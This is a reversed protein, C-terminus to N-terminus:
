GGRRSARRALALALALAGISWAAAPARTARADLACGGGGRAAVPMPSTAAQDTGGFAGVNIRGGHPWPEDGVPLRPDGADITPSTSYERYDGSAPDRLLAAKPVDTPDVPADGRRDAVNGGIASHTTRVPGAADIGLDARTVIVGDLTAAGGALVVLGVRADALTCQTMRLAGGGEVVVAQEHDFLLVHDLHASAGAAVVVGRAADRLAFGELRAGDGLLYADAVARGPGVLRTVWPGEGRVTVGAPVSAPADLRFVGAGLRVVDGPRAAALAQDLTPFAAGAITVPRQAAVALHAPASERGRASRATVQVEYVAGETLGTITVSTALGVDLPASWAGSSRERHRVVHGASWPTPSATWSVTIWDHDATALLDSPPEPALDLAVEVPASWPSWAGAADRARVRAVYTRGPVLAAPLAVSTTGAPAAVEHDWDLLVEGDDDFRVVAALASAPDDPDPGPTWDLQGSPAQVVAPSPVPAAPPENQLALADVRGDRGVLVLRGNALAPSAAEAWRADPRAFSPGAAGDARLWRASAELSSAVLLWAGDPGDVAIPSPCHGFPPVVNQSTADVSAIAGSWTVAGAAPDVVVLRENCVWRDPVGDGDTDLAHDFRVLAVARTGTWTPTSTSVATGQILAAPPADPDGFAAATNATTWRLPDPDVRRLTADAGGPALLVHEATLAAGALYVRGPTQFRWLPAGTDLALASYAGDNCGVVARGDRAALAADALQGLDVQWRPAGTALDLAVVSTSPFGPAVLALGDTVAPAARPGGEAAWEWLVAGTELALCVFRGDGRAVVVRGPGCAPTAVCGPRGLDRTWRPQGTTASLAHVVGAEGVVVVTDDAVVAGAVVRQNLSTSWAGTTGPATREGARSTGDPAGGRQPWDDARAATSAVLAVAALWRATRSVARAGREFRDRLAPRAVHQDHDARRHVGARRRERAGAGFRWEARTARTAVDIAVVGGEANAAWLVGADVLPAARIPANGMPAIGWGPVLAGTPEVAWLRGALDAVYIREDGVFDVFVGAEIGASSVQVPFGPKRAFTLQDLGHLRGDLDGVFLGTGAIVFPYATM